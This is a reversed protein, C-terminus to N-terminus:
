RAQTPAGNRGRPIHPTVVRHQGIVRIQVMVVMVMARWRSCRMPPSFFLPCGRHVHTGTANWSVGRISTMCWCAFLRVRVFLQQPFTCLARSASTRWLLSFGTCRADDFRAVSLRLSLARTLACASCAVLSPLPPFRTVYAVWVSPLLRLPAYFVRLANELRPSLRLTAEDLRKTQDKRGLHENLFNWTTLDLNKSILRKGDFADMLYRLTMAAVMVGATEWLSHQQLRTYKADWDRVVDWVQVLYRDHTIHLSFRAGGSVGCGRSDGFSASFNFWGCLCVVCWLGRCLCVGACNPVLSM